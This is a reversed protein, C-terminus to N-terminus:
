IELSGASMIILRDSFHFDKNAIQLRSILIDAATLRLCGATRRTFQLGSLTCANAYM